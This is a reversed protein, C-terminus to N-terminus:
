GGSRTPGRYQAPAPVGVLVSCNCLAEPRACRPCTARDLVFGLPRGCTRCDRARACRPCQAMQAPIFTRCYRCSAAENPNFRRTPGPAAGAVPPRRVVEDPNGFAGVVTTKRPDPALAALLVVVLGVPAVFLGAEQEFDFTEAGTVVIPFAALALGALVVGIGIYGLSRNM